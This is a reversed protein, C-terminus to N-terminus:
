RAVCTLLIYIYMVGLTTYIYIYIHIYIIYIYIYIYQEHSTTNQHTQNDNSIYKVWIRHQQKVSALASIEIKLFVFGIHVQYIKHFSLVLLNVKMSCNSQMAFSTYFIYISEFCAPPFSISPYYMTYTHPRALVSVKVPLALLTPSWLCRWDVLHNKFSRSLKCLTWTNHYWFNYNGM